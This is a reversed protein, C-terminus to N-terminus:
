IKDYRQNRLFDLLHGMLTESFVFSTMEPNPEEHLLYYLPHDTAKEKGKDTYKYISLPLGAIAESLIRICAYVASIQLSSRENVIKGSTSNGFYFSYNSGNLSNKPKDRSHFLHKLINMVLDTGKSPQIYTM